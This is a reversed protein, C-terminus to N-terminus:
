QPTRLREVLVKFRPDTNFGKTLPCTNLVIDSEMYNVAPDFEDVGKTLWEFAREKEGLLAYITGIRSASVYGAARMQLLQDLVARAEEPHGAGIAIGARIGAGYSSAETAPYKQMIEYAEKYHGEMLMVAASGPSRRQAVFREAEDFQRGFILEIGFAGQAAQWEPDLSLVIRREALSEAHRDQRLLVEALAHHAESVTPGLEIARRAEREAEALNRHWNMQEYAMSIHVQPLEPALRLAQRAAADALPLSVKPPFISYYTSVGYADALGSYALAYKADYDIAQQFYTIAQRLKDPQRSRLAFRGRLYAEYASTNRSHQWGLMDRRDLRTRLSTSVERVLQPQFAALQQRTFNYQGGWLHRDDAGNVLEVSIRFSDGQAQVSGVVVAEVGLRRAIERTSGTVNRFMLASNRSLVRLGEIESLNDTLTESIGDVLYNLQPDSTNNIFPLVAVSEIASPRPWLRWALIVAIAIVIALAAILMTRRHHRAIAIPAPVEGAVGLSPKSPASPQQPAVLEAEPVHTAVQDAGDGSEVVGIFRYGRRPLTEIWRPNDASDSLADRLRRVATNLGHDFDVFTDAPWLKKQIEERTVLEGPRELLMALVQFPQDQLKIRTGHKRLEGTRLDAEFAGFQLLQPSRAPTVM